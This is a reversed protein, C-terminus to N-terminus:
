SKEQDTINTYKGATIFFQSALENSSIKEAM